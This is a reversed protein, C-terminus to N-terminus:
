LVLEMYTQQLAVFESEAPSFLIIEMSVILMHTSNVAFEYKEIVLEINLVKTGGIASPNSNRPFEPLGFLVREMMLGNDFDPCSDSIHALFVFFEWSVVNIYDAAYAVLLLIITQKVGAAVVDCTEFTTFVQICAWLTTEHDILFDLDM